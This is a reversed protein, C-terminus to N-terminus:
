NFLYSFKIGFIDQSYKRDIEDHVVNAYLYKRDDDVNRTYTLSGVLRDPIFQYNLSTDFDSYDAPVHIGSLGTSSTYDMNNAVTYAGGFNVSFRDTIRIQTNLGFVYAWSAKDEADRDDALIETKEKGQYEVEVFGQITLNRMERGVAERLTIKQGGSAVTGTKDPTAAKESFVDPYYNAILDVDVPYQKQDIMRYTAGFEPNIFGIFLYEGEGAVYRRDDQFEDYFRLTLDDTLGYELDQSVENTDSKDYAYEKGLYNDQSYSNRSFDYETSGYFQGKLPLYLPDSIIRMSIPDFRSSDKISSVQERPATQSAPATQDPAAQASAQQIMTNTDPATEVAPANETNAQNIAKELADLRKSNEEMKLELDHIQKLSEDASAESAQDDSTGKSISSDDGGTPSVPQAFSKPCGTLLTLFMFFVFIFVKISGCNM